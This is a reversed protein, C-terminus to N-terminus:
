QAVTAGGKSIKALDWFWTPTSMVEDTWEESGSLAV